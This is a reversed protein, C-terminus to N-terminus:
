QTAPARRPPLETSGEVGGAAFQEEALAQARALVLGGALRERRRRRGVLSKADLVEGRSRSLEHWGSRRVGRRVGGVRGGAASGSRGLPPEPLASGSRRAPACPLEGALPATAATRRCRRPSSPSTTACTMTSVSSGWCRM